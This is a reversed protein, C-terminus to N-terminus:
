ARRKVGYCNMDKLLCTKRHTEKKIKLKRMKDLSKKLNENNSGSSIKYIQM